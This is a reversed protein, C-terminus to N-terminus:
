GMAQFLGEKASSLHIAKRAPILRGQPQSLRGSHCGMGEEKRQEKFSSM